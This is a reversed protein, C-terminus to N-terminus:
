ISSYKRGGVRGLPSVDRLLENESSVILRIAASRSSSSRSALGKDDSHTGRRGARGGEGLRCACPCLRFRLWESDGSSTWDIRDGGMVEGREGSSSPLFGLCRDLEILRLPRRADMDLRLELVLKCHRVVLCSSGIGASGIPSNLCGMSLEEDKGPSSLRAFALLVMDGAMDSNPDMSRFEGIGSDVAVAESGWLCGCGWCALPIRRSKPPDSGNLFREDESEWRDLMFDRRFGLWSPDKTMEGGIGSDNWM